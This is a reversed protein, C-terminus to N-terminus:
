DAIRASITPGIGGQKHLMSCKESNVFAEFSAGCIIRIFPWLLWLVNAAILYARGCPMWTIM